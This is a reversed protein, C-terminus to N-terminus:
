IERWGQHSLRQVGTVPRHELSYRLSLYKGLSDAGQTIEYHRYHWPTRRVRRDFVRIRIKCPRRILLHGTSRPRSIKKRAFNIGPMSPRPVVAINVRQTSGVSYPM